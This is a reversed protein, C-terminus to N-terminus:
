KLAKVVTGQIDKKRSVPTILYDLVALSHWDGMSMLDQLPVGLGHLFGVGARRLSHTGYEQPQLGIEQVSKKLFALVDKYLVPTLGKTSNRLFLPDEESGSPTLQFHDRVAKVACFAPNAVKYVPIELVYERCQLTKTSRVMLMIGWDHFIVDKRRLVHGWKTLTDPVINSKRLLSRFSLIIVCWMLQDEQTLVCTDYILQLQQITLPQMQTKQDGLQSKLGRMVLKVLFSDRFSVDYGYFKHLSIVASLYNNITSYKCTRGLYVLFRVVAQIDAPLPTQDTESCFQLYKRWQSNRTSLTNSSWAAGVASSVAADLESVDM